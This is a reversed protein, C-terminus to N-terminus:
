APVAYREYAMSMQEAVRPWTFRELVLRRGRRGMAAAEGPDELLAAMKDATAAPDLPVVFGCRQEAVEPFHCADSV